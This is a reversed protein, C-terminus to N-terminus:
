ASPFQPFEVSTLYVGGAYDTQGRDYKASAAREIESRYTEFAGIIHLGTATGRDFLSEHSIRCLVDKSGDRMYFHVGELGARVYEEKARQLPMREDIM